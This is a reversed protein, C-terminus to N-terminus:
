FLTEPSKAEKLCAKLFFIRDKDKLNQCLKSQQIFGEFYNDYRDFEQRANPILFKKEIDNCIQLKSKNDIKLQSLYEEYGNILKNIEVELKKSIPEIIIGSKQVALIKQVVFDFFLSDKDIVDMDKRLIYGKGDINKIEINEFTFMIAFRELIALRNLPFRRKEDEDLLLQLTKYDQEHYLKNIREHIPQQRKCYQCKNRSVFGVLNSMFDYGFKKILSKSLNKNHVIVYEMLLIFFNSKSIKITRAM